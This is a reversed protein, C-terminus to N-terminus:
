RCGGDEQDRSVRPVGTRAWIAMLRVERTNPRNEVVAVESGVAVESNGAEFAVWVGVKLLSIVM